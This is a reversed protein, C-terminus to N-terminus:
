GLNNVESDDPNSAPTKLGGVVRVHFNPYTGAKIQRVFDTRTMVTRTLNDRFTQNRGTESESIVSIRKGM